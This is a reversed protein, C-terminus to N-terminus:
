FREVANIDFRRAPLLHRQGGQNVADDLYRRQDDVMLALERRHRDGVIQHWAGRDTLRDAGDLLNFFLQAFGERELRAKLAVGLGELRGQRARRDEYGRRKEDDVEDEAHEVLAHDVRDGDDRGQRRGAEARQQQQHRNVIVQAHDRDDADYQEDADDLLVADHQDIKGLLDLM